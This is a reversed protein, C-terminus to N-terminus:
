RAGDSERRPNPSRTGPANGADQGDLGPVVFRREILDADDFHRRGVFATAHHGWQRMAGASAIGMPWFLFREGRESGPVLGDPGFVSKTGGSPAPLARLLREDRLAYPSGPAGDDRAIGVVYHTQSAMRVVVREGPRMAPLRAPTFAWEVGTPPPSRPVVTATPFFQHYCGCGHITDVLLPRGDDPALTIRIAVADLAGALLDFGGQGPREPLWLSYVLQLLVQDGYRTHAIRQYVVPQTIDVTPTPAQGWGLAGFRDFNGRSEIEFAPAHGALLLAAEPASFRPVGLADRARGPWLAALAAASPAAGVATYRQTAPPQLSWRQMAQEHRTQWAQVGAFFPWRVLPYLGAARQWTAYRDPVRARELLAERPAADRQLAAQWRLTCAQSRARAAGADPTGDLPFASRPLNSLEIARGEAELRQLRELWAEFAAAHARARPALAASFRDVRLGAFGDIRDAEADRVGASDIAADLRDFWRACALAEADAAGASGPAPLNACGALLALGLLAAISKM